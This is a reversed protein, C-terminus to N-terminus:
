AEGMFPFALEPEGQAAIREIRRFAAVVALDRAERVLPAMAEGHPDKTGDEMTIPANQSIFRCLTAVMLRDDRGYDAVLEMGEIAIADETM